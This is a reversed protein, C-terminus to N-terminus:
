VEEVIAAIYEPRLIATRNYEGYHIKIAVEDGKDFCENLKSEYFLDKAKCIMSETWNTANAEAFWVPAAGKQTFPGWKKKTPNWSKKQYTAKGGELPKAMDHWKTPEYKYEPM